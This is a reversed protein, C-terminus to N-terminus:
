KPDEPQEEELEGYWEQSGYLEKVCDECLGHSFHADSHKEIYSELQTWYGKDDRIKKCSSCIPLLGHLIQIEDTANKLQKKNQRQHEILKPFWKMIGVVLSLLGLLYGIVKEIFAQFETNGIVIYKNLSQFNDTIDILSGFLLLSFGGILYKWGEIKEIEGERGKILVFVLVFAFIVTRGIELIIDTM